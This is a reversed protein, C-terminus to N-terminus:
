IHRQHTSARIFENEGRGNGDDDLEIVNEGIHVNLIAINCSSFWDCTGRENGEAM